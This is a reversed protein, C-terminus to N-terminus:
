AVVTARRPDQMFRIAIRPEVPEIPRLASDTTSACGSRRRDDAKRRALVGISEGFLDRAVLRAEDAHGRRPPRASARMPPTTPVNSRASAPRSPSTATAVCGATSRTSQADDPVSPRSATSAAISGALRDRQGVLFHEHHGAPEDRIGCAALADRDQRDVALVVGNM